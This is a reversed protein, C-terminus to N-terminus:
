KRIVSATWCLPNEWVKPAPAPSSGGLASFCGGRLLNGQRWVLSSSGELVYVYLYLDQDPSPLAATYFINGKRIYVNGGINQKRPPPFAAM